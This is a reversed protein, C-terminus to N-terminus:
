VNSNDNGKLNRVAMEAAGLMGATNGLEAKKIIVDQYSPMIHGRVRNKIGEIVYDQVMIGGGLVVCAPNFIHILSALGYLIEEIWQNVIEEVHPEGIRKFIEKGNILSADKKVAKKVLATTSAYKEYCGSFIDKDPNREHGHVVLAGFEGASFGCGKYIKKDMVIAGGIGTGYTLCLFDKFEKGAGFAAEGLAAANVDNEVTVPVHFQETFLERIRIGTYGPINSNAYKILGQRSDVQGATSIGIADFRRYEGIMDMARKIVHPGGFEAQTELEKQDTLVGDIYMGAKINTGGIDLVAIKM